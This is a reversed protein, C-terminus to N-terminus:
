VTYLNDIIIIINNSQSSTKSIYYNISDLMWNIISLSMSVHYKHSLDVLSSVYTISYYYLWANVLTIAQSSRM